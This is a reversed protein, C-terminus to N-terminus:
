SKTFGWTEKQLKKAKTKLLTAASSLIHGFLQSHWKPESIKNMWTDVFIASEFIAWVFISVTGGHITANLFQQNYGSEVKGLCKSLAKLAIRAFVFWFLRLTSGYLLTPLASRYRHIQTVAQSFHIKLKALKKGTPGLLWQFDTEAAYTRTSLVASVAGFCVQYLTDWFTPVQCCILFVNWRDKIIQNDLLVKYCVGWKQKNVM